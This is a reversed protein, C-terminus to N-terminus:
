SCDRAAYEAAYPTRVEKGDITATGTVTATAAPVQAQRTAFTQQASRGPLVGTFTKAGFPTEVRVTAPVAGANVAVVTVTARGAACQTRATATLEVKAARPEVLVAVTRAPVTVTGTAADWTTAKVVDDHGDAQVPSLAFERGVLGAVTQTVPEPSANFVVLAGDLEEDVDTGVTDDISMVIVGPAQGTGADPFTVKKNILEASGLRFLDTSSRLRLLDTANGSATEIDQATPKLAPNALLPAMLPWKDENDAALPLGKGFGNDTGTWDIANFWDGSDYSNRDLSKSRLLDTGAHWLSPTQSLATTALSVNNMRVRDAMSTDAPLKLTLLDFLTENDHADVYSIIEEPSDAYGAPAGRYDIEDGRRTEGTSTTFTFSRLNGALGLRVLDTEHGLAALEDPSGDNVSGPEGARAPQGNPDTALGTGFGQTFTSAGDVPSGGHVADRLRDSFTGIGTGGLQGQTAQEFLANDAVEGFNWGEGYLYVAKGDVGDKTLTLEDLAARVDLMNQKSHHGMLDFRFGDVKYDRAWTVVSDVMLKGTMAHETALNQCCTSTEVAGTTTNQRHYYGPVVKDLVSQPDQGSAATHNFVQDLVVQLGTQHLAGVMTRFEAVRAAGEADVAYSGEPTSFHLPDYGWNFGDTGQIASVAAQQETGDPAFGSLDGTTARDAPDEPITAIDFTPLLHVTTLGADALEGLHKMGASAKEGFALYTGRKAAPVTTDAISFDRVHLEYITQDVAREVVPAKTEKWVKPQTSKAGLDVVVSHTSNLTLGLSYPDTVVNTEVTGTSPVFVEVEYLYRAGVWGFKKDADKGDVTWTGDSQREAPFRRADENKLDAADGTGPWALLTVSKATPAWLAFSAWKGNTYISAGLTRDAADQAFLDDLVGPLQVGTAATLPADAATGGRQAVLLQGTLATTAADVSIPAGDAGTVRLAVADALAPFDAAVDDPL